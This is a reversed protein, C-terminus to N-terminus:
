AQKELWAVVAGERVDAIKRAKLVSAIARAAVSKREGYRGSRWGAIIEDLLPQHQSELRDYWAPSTRLPKIAAAVEDAISRSSPTASKTTTKM